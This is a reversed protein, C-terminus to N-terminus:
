FPDLAPGRNGGKEPQGAQSERAKPEEQNEAIEPGSSESIRPMPPMMAARDAELEPYRGLYEEVRQGVDTKHEFDVHILDLLLERREKRSGLPLYDDIAPTEGRQWAAEFRAVFDDRELRTSWEGRNGHSM